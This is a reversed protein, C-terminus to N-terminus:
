FRWLIANLCAILIHSIQYSLHYQTLLAIRPKEGFIDCFLDSLVDGSITVFFTFKKEVFFVCFQDCFLDSFVNGFITIVLNPSAVLITVSIMMSKPSVGFNESFNESFM